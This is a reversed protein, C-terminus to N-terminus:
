FLLRKKLSNAVTLVYDEKEVEKQCFCMLTLDTIFSKLTKLNGMTTESFDSIFVNKNGVMKKM